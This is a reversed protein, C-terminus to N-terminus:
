RHFYHSQCPLFMHRRFNLLQHRSHCCMCYQFQSPIVSKLGLHKFNVILYYYHQNLLLKHHRYYQHLLHTHYNVLQSQNPIYLFGLHIRALNLFHISEQNRPILHDFNSKQRHICYHIFFLSFSCTCFHAMLIFYQHPNSSQHLFRETHMELLKQFQYNIISIIM